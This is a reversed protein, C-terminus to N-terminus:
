RGAPECLGHEKSWGGPKCIAQYVAVAGGIVVFGAAFGLAASEAASPPDSDISAASLLVAMAAGGAGGILGWKLWGPMGSAAVSDRDLSIPM